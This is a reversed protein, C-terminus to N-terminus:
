HSYRRKRKDFLAIGNHINTWTILKEPNVYVSNIGLIKADIINLVRDDFFLIEDYKINFRSCLRHFMQTKNLSFYEEIQENTHCESIRRRYEVSSFLHSTKYRMLIKPAYQNLSAIAMCVNNERFFHIIDLVHKPMHREKVSHITNDIDFVVLKLKKSIHM